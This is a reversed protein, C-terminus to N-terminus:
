RYDEIVVGHRRAWRHIQMREKGLERAVNQAALSHKRSCGGKALVEGDVYEHREQSAREFALYEEPTM